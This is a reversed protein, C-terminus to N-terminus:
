ATTRWAVLFSTIVSPSGYGEGAVSDAPFQRTPKFDINTLDRITNNYEVNSLRRLVVRGPDGANAHAEVDLYHAIWSRLTMLQLASLQQSDKPPMEQNDLM